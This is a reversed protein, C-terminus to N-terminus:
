SKQMKPALLLYMAPTVLRALFTSSLLGGIIVWALGSYLPSGQLALPLLGGIATLSTLLIPFFRIEGAQQIADLLEVGQERLQHTFDVLLISNKIEIGILAIFGVAGMFSISYGSLFLALMGGIIGLPIVGAVIITSRFDGFELILVALIGFVAILAATGLGAFSSQRAEREGAIQYRYGLPLKEKALLTMVESTLKETNYGSAVQATVTVARQRKYRSISNPATKLQPDILQRLPLADGQLSNVYIQDLVGLNQHGNLLPARLVIPFEDGNPERFNGISEGAVALRVTRDINITPVGYLSAKTTDINLDLDTRSLRLPNSVDRTGQVSKIINETRNALESLVKLEPGLLRIAIPAAIPPGAEFPKVIIKADPYDAFERRLEDYFAPTTHPNFKKAEVYLEGTNAKTERGFVNYYVRQNGRGAYSFM